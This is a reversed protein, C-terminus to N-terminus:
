SWERIFPIRLRESVESMINTQNITLPDKGTYEKIRVALAYEWYTGTHIEKIHDWGCLIITKGDNGLAELKNLINKEGTKEREEGSGQDYGIIEFGLRVAERILNGFEPEGTYFGFRITPYGREEIDKDYQGGESLMAIAELALYKYGLKSLEPLMSKLFHRHKPIYHAENIM